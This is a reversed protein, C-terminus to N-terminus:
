NKILLKWEDIQRTPQHSFVRVMNIPKGVNYPIQPGDKKGYVQFDMHRYDHHKQHYDPLTKTPIQNFIFNSIVERNM